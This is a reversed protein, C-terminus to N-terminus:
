VPTPETFHGEVGQNAWKDLQSLIHQQTQKPQLGLSNGCLYVTEQDEQQLTLKPFYFENRLASISDSDDLYKAFAECNIPLEASAAVSELDTMM